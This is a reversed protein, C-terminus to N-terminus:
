MIAENQMSFMIAPLPGIPDLPPIGLSPVGTYMYPRVAELAAVIVESVANNHPPEICGAAPCFM